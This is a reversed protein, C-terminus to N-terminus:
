NKGKRRVLVRYYPRRDGIRLDKGDDGYRFRVLEFQEPNYKHLFTIPVGMLGDYDCPIDKTKDINIADCNDYKPYEEEHGSYEKVLPIVGKRLDHEMNTLWLCHNGSVIRRGKEDVRAETGYLEYGEPVIFGEFDRSFGVGLWCRGALMLNYVERYTPANITGVILFEKGSEGIIRMFERFLSFPPNTVVIDCEALLEMCEKSRFDGDGDLEVYRPLGEGCYAACVGIGEMNYSTAVLRRLGLRSFNLKFFEWFARGYDNCNCFVAKGRFADGYHSVEKEIDNYMTYFEDKKQRRAAKLYDNSGKRGM